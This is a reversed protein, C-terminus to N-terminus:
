ALRGEKNLKREVCDRLNSRARSLAVYVAEVTWGVLRAIEGPKRSSAYRLEVMRRMSAPLEAICGQLLECREDTWEPEHSAMLSEMVEDPLPCIGADRRKAELVKLRAIACAWKLFDTGEEFVEAKRAVTLFTEQLVDDALFPDRVLARIFGRIADINRLFLGHVTRVAEASPGHPLKGAM